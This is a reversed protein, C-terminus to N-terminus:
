LGYANGHKISFREFVGTDKATKLGKRLVEWSPTICKPYNPMFQALKKSWFINKNGQKWAAYFPVEKEKLHLLTSEKSLTYKVLQIMDDESNMDKYTELFDYPELVKVNVGLEKALQNFENEDHLHPNVVNYIDYGTKENFFMDVTIQAAENVAMLSLPVSGSHMAGIYMYGLFRMYVFSELPVNGGTASDGGIQPLRFAKLPVGREVAQEALRDCILKSISYAANPILEVEEEVPWSEWLHNKEDLRMEAAFTSAHYIYKLQKEVAFSIVNRMGQVNIVRSSKPDNTERYVEEFASKVAL